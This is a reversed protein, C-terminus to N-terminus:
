LVFKQLVKIIVWVIFGWWIINGIIVAIILGLSIKELNM